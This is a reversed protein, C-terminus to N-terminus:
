PCDTPDWDTVLQEDLTDLHAIEEPTLEFDYIQVNSAIRQKSVSKPLAIFGKQLSYRLLIQAPEKGYKKALTVIDPHKFRYGRVLPAWAELAIDHERCIKVIDTRTMFPHLDVQNIAPLEVGSDVLEQIHRVGYNSVGISRVKGEAKADLAARWSERRMEPGGLPSHLLFLDIHGLGCADLSKQIAKRAAAYGSNSRLKTTYFVESRPVGAEKCFDLIARGCQRENAYWEASDIHRYGTELAWRVTTYAEQGEIEYTGFGMIPIENGDRLKLKSQLTLESMTTSHNLPRGSQVSSRISDVKPRFMSRLIHGSRFRLASCVYVLLVAYLLLFSRRISM